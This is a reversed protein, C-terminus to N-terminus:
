KPRREELVRELEVASALQEFVYINFTRHLFSDLSILSSSFFTRSKLRHTFRHARAFRIRVNM